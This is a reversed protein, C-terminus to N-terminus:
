HLWDGPGGPDPLSACSRGWSQAAWVLSRSGPAVWAIKLFGVPSVVGLMLSSQLIYWTFCAWWLTKKLLHKSHIKGEKKDWNEMHGVRHMLGIGWGLLLDQTQIVSFGRSTEWNMLAPINLGRRHLCKGPARQACLAGWMILFM